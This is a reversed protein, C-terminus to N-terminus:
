LEYVNGKLDELVVSRHTEVRVIRIMLSNHKSLMDYYLKAEKYSYFEGFLIWNSKTNFRKWVEWMTEDELM